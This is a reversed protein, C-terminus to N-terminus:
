RSIKADQQTTNTMDKAAVTWSDVIEQVQEVKVTRLTELERNTM